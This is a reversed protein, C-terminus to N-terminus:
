TTEPKSNQVCCVYGSQKCTFTPAKTYGSTCADQQCVGKESCDFFQPFIRGVGGTFVVVIVVLVVLVIIAIIITNLSLGQAKKDM